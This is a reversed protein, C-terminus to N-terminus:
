GLEHGCGLRGSHGAVPPWLNFDKSYTEFALLCLAADEFGSKPQIRVNHDKLIKEFELLQDAAKKFSNRINPNM